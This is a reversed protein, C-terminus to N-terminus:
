HHWIFSNFIVFAQDGQSVQICLNPFISHYPLSHNALITISVRIIDSSEQQLQATAVCLAEHVSEEGLVSIQM